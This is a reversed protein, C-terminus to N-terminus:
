SDLLTHANHTHTLTPLRFSQATGRTWSSVTSFACGLYHLELFSVVAVEGGRRAQQCSGPHSGTEERPMPNRPRYLFSQVLSTTKIIWEEATESGLVVNKSVIGLNKEKKSFCFEKECVFTVMTCKVYFVVCNIVPGTAHDRPQISCKQSSRVWELTDRQAWDQVPRQCQFPSM